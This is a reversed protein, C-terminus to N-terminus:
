VKMSSCIKDFKEIQKIKSSGLEGFKNFIKNPLLGSSKILRNQRSSFHCEFFNPSYMEFNWIIKVSEGMFMRSSSSLDLGPAWVRTRSNLYSKWDQRM